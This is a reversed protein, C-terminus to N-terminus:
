SFSSQMRDRSKDFHYKPIIGITGAIYYSGPGVEEKEKHPFRVAKGLSEYNCLRGLKQDM